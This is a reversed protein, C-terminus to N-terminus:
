KQSSLHALKKCAISREDHASQSRQRSPRVHTSVSYPCSTLQDRLNANDPGFIVRRWILGWSCPHIM